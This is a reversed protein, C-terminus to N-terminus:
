GVGAGLRLGLSLSLNLVKEGHEIFSLPTHKKKKKHAPNLAISKAGGAGAVVRKGFVVVSHNGVSPVHNVVM